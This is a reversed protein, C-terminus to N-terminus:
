EARIEIESADETLLEYVLAIDESVLRVCGMSMQKGISDRDITGHIGYGNLDRVNESMGQLGLWHEGIPNKPDDPEFKEGTRPNAWEPNILKSNERVKFIGVPTANFEGLGVNFSRVFVRDSGEGMYIDMRFDRKSIVAHFPGTVLKIRQGVRIARPNSINNIRALLRWDLLLGNKRQIKALTDGSEIVYTMAFPDGEIIEPSFVLRENLDGLATRVEEAQGADLEGSDLAMTLIQRAELPRNSRILDFGTTMRRVQRRGSTTSPRTPLSPEEVAAPPNAVPPDVNREASREAVQRDDAARQEAAAQASASFSPPMTVKPPTPRTAEDMEAVAGGPEDNFLEANTPGITPIVDGTSADVAGGGAVRDASDADDGMWWRAVSVVAAVAVLVFFVRVPLGRARYMNTRRSRSRAIQSPLSM